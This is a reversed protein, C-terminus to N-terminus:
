TNALSKISGEKALSGLLVTCIPDLEYQPHLLFNSLWFSLIILNSCGYDNWYSLVFCVKLIEWKMVQFGGM